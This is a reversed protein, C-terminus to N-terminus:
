KGPGDVEIVFHRSRSNVEVVIDSTSQKTYKDAIAAKETITTMGKKTTSFDVESTGTLYVTYTGAPLGDNQGKSSMRFEGETNLAGHAVNTDNAFYIVGRAIPQDTGKLVVKGSVRVQSGCGAVAMVFLCMLLSRFILMGNKHQM